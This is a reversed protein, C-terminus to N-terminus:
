HGLYIAPENRILLFQLALVELESLRGGMPVWSKIIKETLQKEETALQFSYLVLLYSETDVTARYGELGGKAIGMYGEELEKATLPKPKKLSRNKKDWLAHASVSLNPKEAIKCIFYFDDNFRFLDTIQQSSDFVLNGLAEVKMSDKEKTDKKVFEEKNLNFYYHLNNRLEDDIDAKCMSADGESFIFSLTQFKACEKQKKGKGGDGTLQYLQYYYIENRTIYFLPFHIKGKEEEYRVPAINFFVMPIEEVNDSKARVACKPESKVVYGKLSGSMDDVSSRLYINKGEYSHSAVTNQLVTVDGTWQPVLPEINSKFLPIGKKRRKWFNLASLGAVIVMAIVTWAQWSLSTIINKTFLLLLIILLNVVLWGTKKTKRVSDGIRKRLFHRIFFRAYVLPAFGVWKMKLREDKCQQMIVKRVYDPNPNSWKWFKYLNYWRYPFPICFLAKSELYKDQAPFLPVRDIRELDVDACLGVEGLQYTIAFDCFTVKMKLEERSIGPYGIEEAVGRKLWTDCNPNNEEIDTFSFSEDVSIHIRSIGDQSLRGSRLTMLFRRIGRNDRGHVIADVGMSSFLLFLSKMLLSRKETDNSYHNILRFVEIFRNQYKEYLYKCVKWTFHDTKYVYLIVKQSDAKFDLLGIKDGIFAMGLEYRHKNVYAIAEKLNDESYVDQLQSFVEKLKKDQAKKKLNEYFAYICEIKLKLDKNKEYDKWVDTDRKEFSTEWFNGNLFSFHCFSSNNLNLLDQLQPEQSSNPHVKFEPFDKNTMNVSLGSDDASIRQIDRQLVLCNNCKYALLEHSSLCYKIFWKRIVFFLTLLIVLGAEIWLLLVSLESNLKGTYDTVVKIAEYRNMQDVWVKTQCFLSYIETQCLYILFPIFLGLMLLAALPTAQRKIAYLKLKNM